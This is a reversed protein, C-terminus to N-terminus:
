NYIFLKSGGRSSKFNLKCKLVLSFSLRLRSTIGSCASYRNYNILTYYNSSSLPLNCRACFLIQILDHHYRPQLAAPLEVFHQFLLELDSHKLNLLLKCFDLLLENNRFTCPYLHFLGLSCLVVLSRLM